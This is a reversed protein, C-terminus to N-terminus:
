DPPTPRRFLLRSQRHDPVPRVDKATPPKPPCHGVPDCRPATAAIRLFMGGTRSSIRRADPAETREARARHTPHDAGDKAHVPRERLPTVSMDERRRRAPDHVLELGPRRRWGSLEPRNM